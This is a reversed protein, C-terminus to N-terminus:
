RTPRPIAHPDLREAVGEAGQTEVDIDHGM